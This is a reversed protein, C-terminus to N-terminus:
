ADRAEALERRLRATRAREILWARCVVFLMKRPRMKTLLRGLCAEGQFRFDDMVEGGEAM